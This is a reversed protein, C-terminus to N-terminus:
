SPEGKCKRASEYGGHFEGGGEYVGRGTGTHM